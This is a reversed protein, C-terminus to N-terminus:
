ARVKRLEWILAPPEMSCEGECATCCSGHRTAICLNDWDWSPPHTEEDEYSDETHGLALCQEGGAPEAYYGNQDHYQRRGYEEVAIDAFVDRLYTEVEFETLPEDDELFADVEDYASV